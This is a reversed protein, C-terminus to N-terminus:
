NNNNKEDSNIKNVKNMTAYILNFILALIITISGFFLNKQWFFYYMSLFLSVLAFLLIIKNM